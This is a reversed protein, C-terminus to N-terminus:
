PRVLDDLASRWLFESLDAETPTGSGVLDWLCACSSLGGDLACLVIGMARVAGATAVVGEAGPVAIREAVRAVAFRELTSNRRLRLAQRVVTAVAVRRRPRLGVLLRAILALRRCCPTSPGARLTEWIPAGVVEAFRQQAARRWAASAAREAVSVIRFRRLDVVGDPQGADHPPGAGNGSAVVDPPPGPSAGDLDAHLHCRGTALTM